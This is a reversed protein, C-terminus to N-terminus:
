DIQTYFKRMIYFAKKKKGQPSLLGKRNWGDQIHPLNRRPSRFDMLIWPSTGALNDIKQIMKLSEKYFYEQFEESWRTQSDAHHGQKAGAGFESIIVPKNEYVEWHVKSCREPTGDYWGIYENIGIVDVRKNLPDNILYKDPDAQTRGYNLAAGILRTSDLQRAKRIFKQLFLNRQDTEPTENMMSWIIVNARNRDRIIMETLQSAAAKYAESSYWDVTWYVPIEEWVLIGKQEALRVMNENHPYHALRIFNCGLEKVWQLLIEADRKSYARGGTYPKEEHM